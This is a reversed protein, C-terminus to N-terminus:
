ESVEEILFDICQRCKRLDEIGNKSTWRWLYKFACGWWYFAMPTLTKYSPKGDIVDIFCEQACGMVAKLADKAEIGGGTYHAPHSVNDPKATSKAAIDCDQRVEGIPEGQKRLMETVKLARGLRRGHTAEYGYPIGLAFIGCEDTVHKAGIGFICSPSNGDIGDADFNKCAECRYDGVGLMAM